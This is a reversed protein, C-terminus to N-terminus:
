YWEVEPLVAAVTKLTVKLHFVLLPGLDDMLRHTAIHLHEERLVSRHAYEMCVAAVPGASEGLRLMSAMIVSSCVPNPGDRLLNTSLHIYEPRLMPFKFVDAKLGLVVALRLVNALLIIAPKQFTEAWLYQVRGQEYQICEEAMAGECKKIQLVVRQATDAIHCEPACADTHLRRSVSPYQAVYGMIDVLSPDSFVPSTNM